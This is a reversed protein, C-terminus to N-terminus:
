LSKIVMYKSAVKALQKDNTFFLESGVSISMALHIADGIQLSNQRQLSGAQEALTEDLAKFILRPIKHLTELSSSVTGALFETIAVASTLLSNDNAKTYDDLIQAVKVSHQKHDELLYNLINTELYLIGSLVLEM